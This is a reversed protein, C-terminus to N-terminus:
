MQGDAERCTWTQNFTIKKQRPRYVVVAQHPAHAVEYGWFTTCRSDTNQPDFHRSDLVLSSNAGNPDWMDCIIFSGDATNVADFHLIENTADERGDIFPNHLFYHFEWGFRGSSFAHSLLACNPCDPRPSQAKSPQLGLGLTIWGSLSLKMIAKLQELPRSPRYTQRFRRSRLLVLKFIHM